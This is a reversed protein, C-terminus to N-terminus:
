HIITCISPFSCRRLQLPRSSPQWLVSISSTKAQTSRRSVFQPFAQKVSVPTLGRFSLASLAQLSLGIEIFVSLSATINDIHEGMEGSLDHLYRQM